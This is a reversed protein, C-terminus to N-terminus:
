KVFVIFSIIFCLFLKILFIFGVVDFLGMDVCIGAWVFLVFFFFGNFEM